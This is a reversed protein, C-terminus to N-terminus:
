DSSRRHAGRHRQGPVCSRGGFYLYELESTSGCVIRLFQAFEKDGGRSSGEAINSPISVAARRIQSVLGYMETSPFNATKAYVDLVFSHSKQWVQLNKFDQMEIRRVCGLSTSHAICIGPRQCRPEHSFATLQCSLAPLQSGSAPLQSSSAPLQYSITHPVNYANRRPTHPLRVSACQRM